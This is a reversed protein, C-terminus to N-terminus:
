KNKGNKVEEAGIIGLVKLAEQIRVHEQLTVRMSQCINIIIQQAEEKKL